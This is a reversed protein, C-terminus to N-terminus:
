KGLIAAFPARADAANAAEVQAADLVEALLAMQERVEDVAANAEAEAALLDDHAAAFVSLAAERQAVSAAIREAPTMAKKPKLAAIM